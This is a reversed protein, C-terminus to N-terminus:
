RKERHPWRDSDSCRTLCVFGQEIAKVLGLEATESSRSGSVGSDTWAKVDDKGDGCSNSNAFCNCSEVGADGIM